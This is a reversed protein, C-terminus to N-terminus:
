GFGSRWLTRDLAEEELLKGNQKPYLSVVIIVHPLKEVQMGCVMVAAEGVLRTMGAAIHYHVAELM